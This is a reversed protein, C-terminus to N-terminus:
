WVRRRLMVWRALRTGRPLDQVCVAVSRDARSWGALAAPEGFRNRIDEIRPLRSRWPLWDVEWIQVLGSRFGEWNYNGALSMAARRDAVVHLPGAGPAPETARGWAYNQVGEDQGGRAARISQLPGRARQPAWLM